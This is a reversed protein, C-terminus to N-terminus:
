GKVDTKSREYLPAIKILFDAMHCFTENSGAHILSAEEDHRDVALEFNRHSENQRHAVEALLEQFLPWPCAKELAGRVTGEHQRAESLRCAACWETRQGKDGVLCGCILTHEM